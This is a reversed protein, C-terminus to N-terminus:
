SPSRSTAEKASRTVAPGATVIVEVKLRVLEAALERSRELGGAAHREEIVIDQGPVYGLDRLGQRSAEERHGPGSRLTLLGIRPVKAPQQAEAALPAFLLALGFLIALRRFRM